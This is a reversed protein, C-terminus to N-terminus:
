VTKVDLKRPSPRQSLASLGARLRAAVTETDTLTLKAFSLRLYQTDGNTLALTGFASGPILLLGYTRALFHAAEADLTGPPLPIFLYFAGHPCNLTPVVPRLLEVLRDRIQKLYSRHQAHWSSTSSRLVHLAIHQSFRTPHTINADQVKLLQDTMHPPHVLFGVRIGALAYSKSMTFLYMVGDSACPLPLGDSTDGTGNEYVFHEYAADFILWIARERCARLLRQCESKCLVAGTPNCPSTLVVARTRPSFRAVMDDVSPLMAPPLRPSRVMQVGHTQLVMEHSFYFPSPVVVEDGVDTCGLIATVFANNAGATVIVGLDGFPDAGYQEVLKQTFHSRLDADGAVDGYGCFSELKGKRESSCSASVFTAAVSQPADFGASGAGLNYEVRGGYEQLLEDIIAPSTAKVRHSAVYATGTGPSRGAM